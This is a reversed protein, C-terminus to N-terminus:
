IAESELAKVERKVLQTLRHKALYVRGSNIGLTTAVKRVPWKKIVYLDFIQFQSAPVQEKVREVALEFIRERWEDEFISGVDLSKPDPIREITATRGEEHTSPGNVNQRRKRKRFQDAIKFQTTHILWSKFSGIAPDYKFNPMAKMLAIFTEQVVEEAETHSMGAKAAVSYVLRSYTDFFVKWSEQDEPNKVRSLLSRRTAYLSDCKGAMAM